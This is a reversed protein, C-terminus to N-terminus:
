HKFWRRATLFGAEVQREQKQRIWEDWFGDENDYYNIPVLNQNAIDNAAQIEDIDAYPKTPFDVLCQQTEPDLEYDKIQMEEDYIKRREADRERGTVEKMVEELVDANKAADDDKNSDLGGSLLLKNFEKEAAAENGEDETDTGLEAVDITYMNLEAMMEKANTLNVRIKNSYAVECIVERLRGEVPTIMSAMFNLGLEKQRIDLHPKSYELAFLTQRILPHDRCWQPLTEYYTWLSPPSSEKKFEPCVALGKQVNDLFEHVGREYKLLAPLQRFATWPELGFHLKQYMLPKDPQLPPLENPGSISSYSIEPKVGDDSMDFNRKDHLAWDPRGGFSAKEPDYHMYDKDFFDRIPNIYITHLHSRDDDNADDKQVIYKSKVGLDKATVGNPYASKPQNEYYWKGFFEPDDEPEPGNISGPYFKIESEPIVLSLAQTLENDRSFILEELHDAKEFDHKRLEALEQRVEAEFKKVDFPEEDQIMDSNDRAHELRQENNYAAIQEREDSIQALSSQRARQELAM